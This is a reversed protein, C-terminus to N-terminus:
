SVVLYVISFMKLLREPSWSIAMRVLGEGERTLRWSSRKVRTVSSSMSSAMRASSAGLTRWVCSAPMGLLLVVAELLVRFGTGTVVYTGGGSGWKGAMALMARVTKVGARDAAYCMGSRLGEATVAEAVFRRM